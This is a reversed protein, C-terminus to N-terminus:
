VTLLLWYWGSVAEWVSVVGVHAADIQDGLGFLYGFMVAAFGLVVVGFLTLSIVAFAKFIMGVEDTDGWSDM